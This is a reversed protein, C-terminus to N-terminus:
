RIYGSNSFMHYNTVFLLLGGSLFHILNKFSMLEILISVYQRKEFKPWHFDQLCFTEPGM